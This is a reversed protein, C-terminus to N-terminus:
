HGHRAVDVPWEGERIPDSYGRTGKEFVGDGGNVVVILVEGVAVNERGESEGLHSLFITFSQLM